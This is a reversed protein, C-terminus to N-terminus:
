PLVLKTATLEGDPRSSRGSHAGWQLGSEFANGEDPRWASTGRMYHQYKKHGLFWVAVM